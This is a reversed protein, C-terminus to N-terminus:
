QGSSKSLSWLDPFAGAFQDKSWSKVTSGISLINSAGDHRGEPRRSDIDEISTIGDDHSKVAVILMSTMTYATELDQAGDADYPGDADETGPWSGQAGINPYTKTFQMTSAYQGNEGLLLTKNPIAVTGWRPGRGRPYDWGNNVGLTTSLASDTSRDSFLFHKNYGYSPRAGARSPCILTRDNKAVDGNDMMIHHWYRQAGMDTGGRRWRRKEDSFPVIMENSTAYMQVANGVNKLNSGCSAQRAKERARSLAPLLLAALIAIIAIVVLLEILTFAKIRHYLRAM